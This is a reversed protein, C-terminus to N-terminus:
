RALLVEPRAYNVTLPVRIGDPTEEVACPVVNGEADLRSWEKYKRWAPPLHLVLEDLPDPNLNTITLMGGFGAESPSVAENQILYVRAADKVFVYEDCGWVLLEHFLKMRRYNYLSSSYNVLVGQNMAIIRGGLKNVFRTMGATLEKHDYTLERTIVECGPDCPTLAYRSGTGGPAYFNSRMMHRGKIEQAFGPEISERAGLDYALLGTAADPGTEVGILDQYGRYCLAVAADADLFVTKALIKRIEEDSLYLPQAGSLFVVPADLTTYPISMLSLVKVWDPNNGSKATDWFPDYLLQVGKLACQKAHDSIAQFRGRERSFFQGYIKEETGHDLLQQTQFISGVLGYSYASSMFVRMCSASTFFRTHPYSDSEHYCRVDSGLHQKRYLCQFIRAPARMIDEGGYFTGTLRVFPTHNPGALARTVAETANGDRRWCGSEATGMPVEPNEKDVAARMAAALGALSDCMLARWRRLLAYSEPTKQEFIELLEERTYARGERGAFAALHHECFCGDSFTAASVSFDDETLVFVPRAIKVFLAVNRSFVERFVPNLPCSAMPTENGDARIMRNWRPDPGSKVTTAIWWGCELGDPAVADRVAAFFEARNRYFEEPPYGMYRWGACPGTLAFRTFGYNRNQARIEEIVTPVTPWDRDISIPIIMDLKSDDKTKM